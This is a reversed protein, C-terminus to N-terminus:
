AFKAYSLPPGAAASTARRFRGMWELIGSLACMGGHGHSAAFAPAGVLQLRDPSRLSPRDRRRSEDRLSMAFELRAVLDSKNGNVSCGLDKLRVRVAEVTLEDAGVIWLDNDTTTATDSTTTRSALIAGAISRPVSSAQGALYGVGTAAAVEVSHM